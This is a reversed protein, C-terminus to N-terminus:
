TYHLLKEIRSTWGVNGLINFKVYISLKHKLFKIIFVYMYM